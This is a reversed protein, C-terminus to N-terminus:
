LIGIRVVSARKYPEAVDTAGLLGRAGALVERRYHVLFAALPGLHLMVFSFLTEDEPRGIGVARQLLTNAVTLHGDGSVPLFETVGQGVGLIPSVLWDM